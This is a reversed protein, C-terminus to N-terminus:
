GLRERVATVLGLDADIWPRDAVDGATCWVARDHVRLTPEGTCTAAYLHLEGTGSVLDVPTDPGIREGVVVELGLEERCERVLAAREDEGPEVKGGPFEWRGALAGAARRCALLRGDRVIAAAVVVTM